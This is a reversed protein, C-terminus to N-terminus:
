DRVRWKICGEKKSVLGAQREHEHLGICLSGSHWTISLIYDLISVEPVSSHLWLDPWSKM